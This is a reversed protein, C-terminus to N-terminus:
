EFRRPLGWPHIVGIAVAVVDRLYQASPPVGESDALSAVLGSPRARQGVRCPPEGAADRAPNRDRYYSTPVPRKRPSRRRCGAAQPLLRCPWRLRGPLQRLEAARLHKSCGSVLSIPRVSLFDMRHDACRKRPDATGTRIARVSGSGQCVPCLVTAANAATNPISRTVLAHAATAKSPARGCRPRARDSAEACHPFTGRLPARKRRTNPRRTRRGPSTRIAHTANM